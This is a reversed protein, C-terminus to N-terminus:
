EQCAACESTAGQSLYGQSPHEGRVRNIAGYKQHANLMMDRVFPDFRKHMDVAVIREAEKAKAVIQDAEATTLCLPKETIVDVGADLADLIPQSHVHDPTAVFLVDPKHSALIDQWVADGYCADIKCDPDSDLFDEAFWDVIRGATGSKESRARFM